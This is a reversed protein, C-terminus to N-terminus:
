YKRFKLFLNLKKKFLGLRSEKTNKKNFSDAIIKIISRKLKVETHVVNINKLSHPNKSFYQDTGCHVGSNDFGINSVLSLNPYFFYANELFMSVYYRIAWSDVRGEIQDKLMSYFEIGGFDLEKQIGKSEIEALLKKGDFNVKDWRDKWTAYSWSCAIPLFYTSDKIRKTSPYKFGSVGFVKKEYEYVELAENMFQLFYKGTLIDDELVIVKGYKNIIESVGSIISNALGLNDSREIVRVDGCWSRENILDRIERIKNLDVQNADEKPGDSYIYLISEDALLNSSLANLTQRTHWPRNYVFLLIPALM